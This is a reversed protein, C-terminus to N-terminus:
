IVKGLAAALGLRACLYRKAANIFTAFFCSEVKEFNKECLRSWSKKSALSRKWLCIDGKKFYIIYEKRKKRRIKKLFNETKKIFSVIVCDQLLNSKKKFVKYIIKLM